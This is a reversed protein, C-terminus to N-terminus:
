RGVGKLFGSKVNEETDDSEGYADYPLFLLMKEHEKGYELVRM